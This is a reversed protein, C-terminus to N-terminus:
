SGIRFVLLLVMLSNSWSWTEVEVRLTDIGLSLYTGWFVKHALPFFSM